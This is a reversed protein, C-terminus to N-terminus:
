QVRQALDPRAPGDNLLAGARRAAAQARAWRGERRAQHAEELAAQLDWAARARRGAQDGAAGGVSGARGGRSRALTAAASWVVPRHRRAWKRCRHALSPRRARLPEDKLYRQLDDAMEQATAYRDGANKEMAKLVITELEPPIARDLRSPPRPEESD